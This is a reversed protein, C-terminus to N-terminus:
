EGAVTYGCEMTIIEGCGCQVEIHTIRDGDRILRTIAASVRPAPEVPLAHTPAVAPAHSIHAAHAGVGLAPRAHDGSVGIPHFEGKFDRQATAKGSQPTGSGNAATTLPKFNSSM